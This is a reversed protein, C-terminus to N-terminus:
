RRSREGAVTFGGAFVSLRRFLTQESRDLLDYSWAITASLTRQRESVDVARAALLPLRTDLRELM